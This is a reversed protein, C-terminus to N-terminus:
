LTRSVAQVDSKDTYVAPALGISYDELDYVVYANKLFPEGLVADNPSEYLASNQVGLVCSPDTTDGSFFGMPLVLSSSNASITLGDFKFDVSIEAQCDIYYLGMDKNYNTLNLGSGIARFQTDPFAIALSGSDLTVPLNFDLEHGDLVLSKFNIQPGASPNAVNYYHLDGSYKAHDIGGLLFTGDPSHPGDFHLSYLVHDIFGQEKASFPFNYYQPQGNRVSMEVQKFSVGLIGQKQDQMNSVAGLQLNSLSLGAANVNDTVWYGQATGGVYAANFSTGLSKFTSSAQPNFLGPGGTQDDGMAPIWLDSSGTDFSVEFSQPPTGVGIYTSIYVGPRGKVSGLYTKKSVDMSVVKPNSPAAVSLASLALLALLAPFSFFMIEVVVVM